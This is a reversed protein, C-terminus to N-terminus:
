IPKKCRSPCVLYRIKNDKNHKSYLQQHQVKSHGYHVLNSTLVGQLVIWTLRTWVFRTQISSNAGQGSFVSEFLREAFLRDLRPWRLINSCKLCKSNIGTVFIGCILPFILNFELHAAWLKYILLRFHFFTLTQTLRLRVSALNACYDNTKVLTYFSKMLDSLFCSWVDSNLNKLNLILKITMFVYLDGVKVNILSHKWKPPKGKVGAFRQARKVSKNLIQLEWHIESMYFLACSRKMWLTKHNSPFTVIKKEGKSRM